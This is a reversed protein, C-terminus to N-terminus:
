KKLYKNRGLENKAGSEVQQRIKALEGPYMGYKRLIEGIPADKVSTEQYIRWKEEVSLKKRGTGNTM